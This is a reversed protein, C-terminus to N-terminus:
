VKSNRRATKQELGPVIRLDKVTMFLGYTSEENFYYGPSFTVSVSEGEILKERADDVGAFESTFKFLGDADCKLNLRVCFNDDMVSKMTYKGADFGTFKSDQESDQLYGELECLPDLFCADPLIQINVGYDGENFYKIVGRMIVNVQKPNGIKCFRMCKVGNDFPQPTSKGNAYGSPKSVKCTDLNFDALSPFM